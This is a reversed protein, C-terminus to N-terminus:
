SNELENIRDRWAQRQAKIPAYEEETIWGEAYKVAQYDTESLKTKLEGIEISVPIEGYQELSLKGDVVRWAYGVQSYLTENFTNEDVEITSCSEDIPIDNPYRQCVWGDKNYCISIKMEDM